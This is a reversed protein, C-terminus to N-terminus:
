LRSVDAGHLSPLSNLRAYQKWLSQALIASTKAHNVTRITILDEKVLAELIVAM